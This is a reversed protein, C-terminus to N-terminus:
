KRWNSQFRLFGEREPTLSSASCTVTCECHANTLSDVGGGASSKKTIVVICYNLALCCCIVLHCTAKAKKKLNSQQRKNIPIVEQHWLWYIDYLIRQSHTQLLPHSSKKTVGLYCYCSNFALIFYQNHFLPLVGQLLLQWTVSRCCLSGALTTMWWLFWIRVFFPSREWLQTCLLTEPISIMKYVFLLEFM